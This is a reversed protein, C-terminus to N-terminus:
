AVFNNTMNTLPSSVYPLNGNIEDRKILQPFHGYLSFHKLLLEKEAWLDYLNDRVDEETWEPLIPRIKWHIHVKQPTGFWWSWLCAKQEDEYAITADIM